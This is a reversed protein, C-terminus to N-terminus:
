EIGTNLQPQFYRKKLIKRLHLLTDSNDEFFRVGVGSGNSYVVQTTVYIIETINNTVISFRIELLTDKAFQAAETKFFLGHLSINTVEGTLTLHGKHYAAIKLDAPVRTFLRLDM